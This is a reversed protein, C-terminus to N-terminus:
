RENPVEEPQRDGNASARVIDLEIAHESTDVRPRVGQLLGEALAELHELNNTVGSDRVLRDRDIGVAFPTGPVNWDAFLWALDPRAHPGLSDVFADNTESGQGPVTLMRIAPYNRIFSPLGPLLSECPSCGASLFLVISPVGEEVVDVFTGPEPGGDLRGPRAPTLRVLVGGVQRMLGILVLAQVIVAIALLVVVIQWAAQTM